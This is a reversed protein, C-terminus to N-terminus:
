RERKTCWDAELDCILLCDPIVRSNKCKYRCHVREKDCDVKLKDDFRILDFAKIQEPSLKGKSELDVLRDCDDMEGESCREILRETLCSVAAILIASFVAIIAIVILFEVLTFGKM